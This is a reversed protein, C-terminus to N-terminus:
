YRGDTMSKSRVYAVVLTNVIWSDMDSNRGVATEPLSAFMILSGLLLKNLASTTRHQLLM